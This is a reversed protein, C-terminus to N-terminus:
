SAEKRDVGGVRIAIISADAARWHLDAGCTLIAPTAQSIQTTLQMSLSDAFSSGPSEVPATSYDGLEGVKITCHAIQTRNEKDLTDLPTVDVDPVVNVKSTIVYKGPALDLSAVQADGGNPVEPGKARHTESATTAAGSPADTSSGTISALTSPKLKKSSITGNAIDVGHVAGNKIQGSNRVLVTTTAVATGSLAVVLAIISVVLSASPRSVKM